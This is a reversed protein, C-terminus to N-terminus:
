TITINRRKRTTWSVNPDLYSPVLDPPNRNMISTRKTRIVACQCLGSASGLLVQVYRRDQGQHDKANTKRYQLVLFPQDRHPDFTFDHREKGQYASSVPRAPVTIGLGTSNQVGMCLLANRTRTMRNLRLQANSIYWMRYQGHSQSSEDRFWENNLIM